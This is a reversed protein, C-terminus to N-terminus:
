PLVYKKNKIVIKGQALLKNVSPRLERTPADLQMRLLKDYVKLVNFAQQRRKASLDNLGYLLIKGNSALQVNLRLNRELFRLPDFISTHFMAVINPALM